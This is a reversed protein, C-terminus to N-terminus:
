SSVGCVTVKVAVFRVTGMGSSGLGGTIPQTRSFTGLETETTEVAMTAGVSPLQVALLTPAPTSTGAVLAPARKSNPSDTRKETRIVGLLTPARMNPAQANSCVFQLAGCNPPAFLMVAVTTGASMGVGIGVGDGFEVGVAVGIGVALGVGVAVGTGVARGTPVAARVGLGVGDDRALGSLERSSDAFGLGDGEGELEGSRAVEDGPTVSGDALAVPSVIPM